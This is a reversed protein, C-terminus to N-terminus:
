HTQSLVIDRLMSVAFCFNKQALDKSRSKCFFIPDDPSIKEKLCEQKISHEIFQKTDLYETKGAGLVKLAM